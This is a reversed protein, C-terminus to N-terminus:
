DQAKQLLEDGAEYLFLPRQNSARLERGVNMCMKDTSSRRERKRMDTSHSGREEWLVLKGGTDQVGRIDEPRAEGTNGERGEIWSTGGDM